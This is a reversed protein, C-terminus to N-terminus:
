PQRSAQGQVCDIGHGSVDLAPDATPVYQLQTFTASKITGPPFRPREETHYTTHAMKTCGGTHVLSGSLIRGTYEQVARVWMGVYRAKPIPQQM